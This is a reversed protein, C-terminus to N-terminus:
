LIRDKDDGIWIELANLEKNKRGKGDVGDGTQEWGRGGKRDKGM